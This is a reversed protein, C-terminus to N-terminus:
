SPIIDLSGKQDKHIGGRLFLLQGNAREGAETKSDNRHKTHIWYFLVKVERPEQSETRLSERRMGLGKGNTM